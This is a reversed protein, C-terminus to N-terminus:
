PGTVIMSNRCYNFVSFSERGKKTDFWYDIKPMGKIVLRNYNIRYGFVKFIKNNYNILIDRNMKNVKSTEISFKRLPLAKKNALIAHLVFAQDDVSFNVIPIFLTNLEFFLEYNLDLDFTLTIFDNLQM